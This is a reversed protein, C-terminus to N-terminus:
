ENISARSRNRKGNKQNQTRNPDGELTLQIDDPRLRPMAWLASELAASNQICVTRHMGERSNPEQNVLPLPIEKKKEKTAKKAVGGGLGISAQTRCRNVDQYWGWIVSGVNEGKGQPPGQTGKKREDGM